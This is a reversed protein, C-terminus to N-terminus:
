FISVVPDGPKEVLVAVGVEGVEDGDEVDAVGGGFGVCSLGDGDYGV